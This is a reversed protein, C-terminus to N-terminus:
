YMKMLSDPKMPLALFYLNFNLMSDKVCAMGWTLDLTSKPCHKNILRQKHFFISDGLIPLGIIPYEYDEGFNLIMKISDLTIQKQSIICRIEFIYESHYGTAPDDYIDTFKGIYRGFYHQTSDIPVFSLNNPPSPSQIDDKQCAIFFLLLIAVFLLKNESFLM